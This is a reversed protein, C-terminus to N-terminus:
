GALEERSAIRKLARHTTVALYSIWGITAGGTLFVANAVWDGKPSSLKGSLMVYSIGIAAALGHAAGVSVIRDLASLQTLPSGEREFASVYAVLGLSILLMGAGYQWGHQWHVPTFRYISLLAAGGWGYVMASVRTSYVVARAAAAKHPLKLVLSPIRAAAVAAAVAFVGAAAFLTLKADQWAAVHMAALSGAAALWLFFPPIRQQM